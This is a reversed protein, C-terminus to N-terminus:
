FTIINFKFFTVSVQMVEGILIFKAIISPVTWNMYLNHVVKQVMPEVPLLSQILVSKGFVTDMTVYVIGPGIQFYLHIANYGRWLFM